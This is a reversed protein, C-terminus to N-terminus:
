FRNDLCDIADKATTLNDCIDDLHSGIGTSNLLFDQNESPDPCVTIGPSDLLDSGGSSKTEVVISQKQYRELAPKGFLHLFLGLLLFVILAKFGKLIKHM